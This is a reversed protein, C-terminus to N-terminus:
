ASRSTARDRPDVPSQKSVAATPAKQAAGLRSIAPIWRRVLRGLRAIRRDARNSPARLPWLRSPRPVRGTCAWASQGAGWRPCVVREAVLEIGIVVEADTQNMELARFGPLGLMAVPVETPM